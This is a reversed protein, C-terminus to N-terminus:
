GNDKEQRMRALAGLAVIAALWGIFSHPNHQMIAVVMNASFLMAIITM